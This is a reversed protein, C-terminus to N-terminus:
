SVLRWLWGVVAGLTGLGPTIGGDTGEGGDAHAPLALALLAMAAAKSSLTTKMTMGKTQPERLFPAPTEHQPRGTGPWPGDQRQHGPAARLLARARHDM